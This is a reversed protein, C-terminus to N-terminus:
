PWMVETLAGPLLVGLAKSSGDPWHVTAGELKGASGTGVHLVRQPPSGAGGGAILDRRVKRGGVTGSIWAGVASRNSPPGRLLLQVAGGLKPMDNRLVRLGAPFGTDCVRAAQVVDLDGDGDLDVAAAALAAIAGCSPGEIASFGFGASTRLAVLEIAKANPDASCSVSASVKALSASNMLLPLWLDEKGDHDFDGVLLSWSVSTWTLAGLASALESGPFFAASGAKRLYLLAPGIDALALDLVGDDNWDGVAWGMAHAYPVMGSTQAVFGKGAENHLLAHDGFDNGLLVDVWGDADLDIASVTTMMGGSPLKWASTADAFSGDAQRLLLRDQENPASLPPKDFLCLLDENGQAKCALGECQTPQSGAGLYLDVDGDGDFDAAAISTVNADFTQPVWALTKDIWTGDGNGHYIALGSPGGFLLEDNGDGDLDVLACAMEPAVLTGPLPQAVHKPTASGRLVTHVTVTTGPAAALLVVDPTADADVTGVGVCFSLGGSPVGPLLTASGIATISAKPLTTPSTPTIPWLTTTADIAPVPVDPGVDIDADDTDALADTDADDTDALADTDADDTDALADTDAVESEPADIEADEADDEADEADDEADEADEADDEADKADDEADEADKADEAADETDAADEADDGIDAADAADAVELAADVDLHGDASPGEGSGCAASMAVLTGLLAAWALASSSRM